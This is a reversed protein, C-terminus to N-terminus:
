SEEERLSERARLASEVYRYTRILDQVASGAREMVTKIGDRDNLDGGLSSLKQEEDPGPYMRPLLTEVVDRQWAETPLEAEGTDEDFDVAGFAVVALQLWVSQAISVATIDRLAADPGDGGESDLLRRLGEIGENITLTPLTGHPELHFVDSKHAKRWSNESTAFVDWRVEIPTDFLNQPEDVYLSIPDGMAVMMGPEVPSGSTGGDGKPSPLATSRVLMPRLRVTGQVDQKRLSVDGVWTGDGTWELTVGHRYKAKKCALSVLLTLDEAPDSTDPLVRKLEQEPLSAHMKFGLTGWPPDTEVVNYTRQLFEGFARRNQGEGEQVEIPVDKTPDDWDSLRLELKESIPYPALRFPKAM